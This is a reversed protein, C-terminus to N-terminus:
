GAGQVRAALGPELPRWRAGSAGGGGAGFTGAGAPAVVQMAAFGSSEDESLLVVPRREGFEVWWVEGRQMRGGPWPSPPRISRRAGSSTGGRTANWRWTTGEGAM